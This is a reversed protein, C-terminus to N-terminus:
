CNRSTVFDSIPKTTKQSLLTPQSRKMLSEPKTSRLVKRLTHFIQVASADAGEAVSQELTAAYVDSASERKNKVHATWFTDASVVLVIGVATGIIYKGYKRWADDFKDRRVDEDVERMLLEQEDVM